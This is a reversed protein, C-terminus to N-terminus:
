KRDGGNGTEGLIRAIETMLNSVKENKIQPILLMGTERALYKLNNNM